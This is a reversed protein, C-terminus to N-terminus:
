IEFAKKLKIELRKAENAWYKAANVHSAGVYSFTDAYSLAVLMKEQIDLACDEPLQNYQM